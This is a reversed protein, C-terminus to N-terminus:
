EIKAWEEMLMELEKNKEDIQSQIDMVKIYDSCVEPLCMQSELMSIQTELEEIKRELQKRKAEKKAREKNAIYTNNTKGKKEEIPQVAVFTKENENQKDELSKEFESYTTEKLFRAGSEEFVILSSAIKNVFYRDHSVFLITGEYKELLKEFAERSVIDMHNTPEDLILFNPRRKMIKCLELRVKEGGSLDKLNKFVDDGSFCFSGLINRANETDEEPFAKLFNELVSEDPVNNTATQQDFYGIEVNTGFGFKGKILPIKQMITKLLTSKGLGNGGVIGIKDGKMIRFTLRCLAQGSYGIEIDNAFMVESGSETFPKTQFKFVKTDAVDPRVIDGMKEIAKLKSQAMKAKTAKYRFRDALAQLRDREETKKNYDKLDKEFNEQKTKIFKSYNGLYKKVKGREIEYVVNVFKDMFARDHSVVIIAKPYSALYEELWMTSTIDLHNTPEDLVLLDPKSLLLKILAIKTRQGGSFECIKKKKDEESFGFKKIANNYEKQYTYGGIMEYELLLKEYKSIDKEECDVKMKEELNDIQRKTELVDFYVKLIEDEFLEEENEFDIQKLHGIRFKGTKQIKEKANGGDIKDIEQEGMIVNLLTTKGSGNRGVIAVKDKENVEFTVNQLVENEGFSVSIEDLFLRM